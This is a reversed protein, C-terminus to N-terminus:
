SRDRSARPHRLRRRSAAVATRSILSILLVHRGDAVAGLSTVSSVVAPVRLKGQGTLAAIIALLATLFVTRICFMEIPNFYRYGGTFFAHVVLFAELLVSITALSFGSVSAARRFRPTGSVADSNSRTGWHAWSWTVYSWFVLHLAYAWWLSLARATLVSGSEM